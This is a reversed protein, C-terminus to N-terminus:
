FADFVWFGSIDPVIEASQGEADAVGVRNMNLIYFASGFMMYCIFLIMLFSRIDYITDLILSIFFATTDFLRLWDFVKFWLFCVSIAAFVRQNYLPILSLFNCILVLTNLILYVLDNINWYDTFYESNTECNRWQILETKAQNIIFMACYGFLPCYMAMAMETDQDGPDKLANVLFFHIGIMYFVYPLFQTWFIKTKYIDWYGSLLSSVFRTAQIETNSTDNIAEVLDLFNKGGAKLWGIEMMKVTVQNMMIEDDEVGMDVRLKRTTRNQCEQPSLRFKKCWFTTLREEPSIDLTIIQRTYQTDVLINDFTKVVQMTPKSLLKKIDDQQM